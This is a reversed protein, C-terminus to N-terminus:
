QVRVAQLLRVHVHLRVQHITNHVERLQIMRRVVEVVPSGAVAVLGDRVYSLEGRRNAARLFHFNHTFCNDPTFSFSKTVLGDGLYSLEGLRDSARLIILVIRSAIILPLASLNGLKAIRM